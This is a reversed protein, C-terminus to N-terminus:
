FWESGEFSFRPQVFDMETLFYAVTLPSELMSRLADPAVHATGRDGWQPGWSNFLRLYPRKSRDRKDTWDMICIAHCGARQYSYREICGNAPQSCEPTWAIGLYLGGVRKALGEYIQELTTVPSWAKLRRKKADEIAEASFSTYYKGTYPAYEELCVGGEKSAQLVGALTAGRDGTIGAKRQGTIYAMMRSLQVRVSGKSEHYMCGEQVTTGSNGACSNLQYQNEDKIVDIMGIPQGMNLPDINGTCYLEPASSGAVLYGMDELDRRYGETSCGKPLM